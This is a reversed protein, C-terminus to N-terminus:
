YAQQDPFVQRYAIAWAAMGIPMFLFAGVYCLLLGICGLLMNLLLLGLVGGFNALVARASTKIANFGSLRRDVILAYSFLFLASIVMGLIMVVMFIVGMVIFFTVLATPDGGGGGTGRPGTRPTLAAVGIFFVFYLPFILALIPLVHAVGAILGDVFFDFGKFLQGFEVREGRLRKLLCLYIGCMMPGMLIGLPVASGVIIGVFTIGLFLWYDGKILEWGQKLSEV